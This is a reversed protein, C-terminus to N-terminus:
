PIPWSLGWIPNHMEANFAAKEATTWSTTTFNFTDTVFANVESCDCSCGMKLLLGKIGEQNNTITTNFWNALRVRAPDTAPAGAPIARFVVPFESMEASLETLENQLNSRNCGPTTIGAPNPHASTDFIGHQSEHTLTQLTNVRWDERTVGGITPATTTNFQLAEQNLSGHVFVCHKTAGATGPTITGAPLSDASWASCDQTLAGTGSSMDEDIFIGQITSVRGPTQGELFRELQRAHGAHGTSLARAPSMGQRRTRAAAERAAEQVGFDSASGPVSPANCISAATCVRQITGSASGQQIVHTLEHAMLKKGCDSEPSYQGNNFVINNGSTYALANISQASKAAVSDTHLRVGSFDHGLRPEFFNRSSESMKQGSSSLSSVYNDLDHGSHAESGDNEKRYVHKEEEECAQCKRQAANNVPKFFYNQKVSLDTMRMVKDAMNDAEQEYVDGPQNITLKPQFFAANAPPNQKQKNSPATQPALNM